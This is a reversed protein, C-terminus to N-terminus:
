RVDEVLNIVLDQVILCQDFEIPLSDEPLAVTWLPTTYIVSNDAPSRRLAPFISVTANGSGDSVADSTVMYVKPDNAVQFWDGAKLATINTSWGDTLISDGTQGGGKILPTGTAVGLPTFAPLSFTFTSAQGARGVLFAWLPAFKARTMAGYTIQIGWRHAGTTRAQRRFGPTMSVLTPSLSDIVASRWAPTTPYDPTRGTVNDVQLYDGADNVQLFDGASNVIFPTSM